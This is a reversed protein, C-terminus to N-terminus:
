LQTVKHEWLILILVKTYSLQLLLGQNEVKTASIALRLVGCSSKPVCLSTKAQKQFSKKWKLLWKLQKEAVIQPRVVRISSNNNNSSISSISTNPSVAATADQQFFGSLALSAVSPLFSSWSSSNRGAFGFAFLAFAATSAM